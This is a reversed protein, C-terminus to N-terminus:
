QNLCTIVYYGYGCKHGGHNAIPHVQQKRGNCVKTAYANPDTGCYERPRFYATAPPDYEGTSLMAVSVSTRNIVDQLSKTTAANQDRQTLYLDREQIAKDYNARAQNASAFGFLKDELLEVSYPGLSTSLGIPTKQYFKNAGDIKPTRKCEITFNKKIPYSKSGDLTIAKGDTSFGTSRCTIAKDDYTIADLSANTFANTFEGFFLVSQPAQEQHTIRFGRNELAVCQNFSNLAAVVVESKYDAAQSNFYNQQVGVKCFEDMKAQATTSTASFTFPIGKVVAEANAGLASNNVEGSKQCYLSFNYGLETLQRSSQSITRTSNAYVSACDGPAAVASLPMTLLGTVLCGLTTKSLYMNRKEKM